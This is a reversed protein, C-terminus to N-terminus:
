WGWSAGLGVTTAESRFLLGYSMGLPASVLLHALLGFLTSFGIDFGVVNPLIGTARMVPSSILGGALGAVAGLEISRLFRLGRGERERNLPDSQIFLRVWVRDITAYVVGLILGYVIHGVLSGFL